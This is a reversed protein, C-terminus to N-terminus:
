AEETKQVFIQSPSNCRNPFQHFSVSWKLPPLTTLFQLLANQESKGEEHGPYCTLSIVGGFVLLDLAQRVSELTTNTLTTIRKDGGPFYGLNYVILAASAPKVYKGLCEHGDLIWEVKERGVSESVIKKARELAQKQIDFALIKEWSSRSILNALFLTDHGNGCTADVVVGPFRTLLEWYAKSFDLPTQFLTFRSRM